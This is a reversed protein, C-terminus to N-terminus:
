NLTGHKCRIVNGLSLAARSSRFGLVVTSTAAWVCGGVCCVELAQAGEEARRVRSERVKNKIRSSAIKIRAITQIKVCSGRLKTYQSRTKWRLLRSALMACSWRLRSRMRDESAIEWWGRFAAQVSSRFRLRKIALSTETYRVWAEFVRLRVGESVRRLRDRLLEERVRKRETMNALLANLCNIKSRNRFRSVLARVRRVLAVTDRWAVFSHAVVRTNGWATRLRIIAHWKKRQSFGRFASQIM